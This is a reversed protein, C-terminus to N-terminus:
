QEKSPNNPTNSINTINVELQALAFTVPLTKVELGAQKQNRKEETLNNINSLIWQRSNYRESISLV